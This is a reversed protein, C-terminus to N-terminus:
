EALMGASHLEYEDGPEQHFSEPIVARAVEQAAAEWALRRVHPLDSWPKPSREGSERHIRVFASYAASGYSM